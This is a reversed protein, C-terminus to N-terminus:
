RGNPGGGLLRQLRDVPARAWTTSYTAVTRVTIPQVRHVPPAGESRAVADYIRQRCWPFVTRPIQDPSVFMSRWAELSRRPRGGAIEGLYVADAVSRLGSWSYVGVMGRVTVRYGTEEETERVATEAPDEDVEVHGGPLEWGPPFPRLQVLVRSREDVIALQAGQVPWAM